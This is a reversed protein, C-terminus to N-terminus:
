CSPISLGCASAIRQGTTSYIIAGYTPNAAYSCFCPLQGRLQDCCDSTPEGGDQYAPLCPSLAAISCSQSSIPLVNGLLLVLVFSCMLSSATSKSDMAFHHCSILKAQFPTLQAQARVAQFLPKFPAGGGREM